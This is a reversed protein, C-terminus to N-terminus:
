IRLRVFDRWLKKANERIFHNIKDSVIRIKDAHVVFICASLLSFFATYADRFDSLTRVEM